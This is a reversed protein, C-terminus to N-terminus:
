IIRKFINFPKLSKRLSGQNSASNTTEAMFKPYQRSKQPKKLSNVLDEPSTSPYFAYVPTDSYLLDGTFLYGTENDLISIHGPSHGPTHYIGLSRNGLDITDGDSLLRDPSGQYPKYTFPDFSEPIPVTIDRAMNERIQELSLGEIGNILWNADDGHVYITDYDGHGGIHDAHVHTTLVIIPLDTLQDTIRKISCIGLGIDILAARTEGLLLFSHVKEWHGYESIAITGSDLEQVTFWPDVINKM